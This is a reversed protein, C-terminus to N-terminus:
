DVKAGSSKVVKAWKEMESRILADFQEPSSGIPEMGQQKMRETLDSERVAKAIDASIRHVLDNFGEYERDQFLGALRQFGSRGPFAWYSEIPELLDLTEAVLSHAPEIDDGRAEADVLRTANDSLHIWGDNRVEWVSRYLNIAIERQPEVSKPKRKM